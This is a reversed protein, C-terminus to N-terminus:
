IPWPEDAEIDTGAVLRLSPKKCQAIAASLDAIDERVQKPLEAHVCDVVSQYLARDIFWLHVILQAMVHSMMYIIIALQESSYCLETRKFPDIMRDLAVELADIKQEGLDGKSKSKM